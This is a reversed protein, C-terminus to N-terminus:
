ELARYSAAFFAFSAEWCDVCALSSTSSLLTSLLSASLLSTFLLSFLDLLLSADYIFLSILIPLTVTNISYCDTGFVGFFILIPGRNYLFM